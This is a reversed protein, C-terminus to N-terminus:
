NCGPPTKTASKKMHWTWTSTCMGGTPPLGDAAVCGMFMNEAEIVDIDFENTATVTINSTDAQHWTCAAHTPLTPNNERTLVGMNCMVPGAGLSGDTGVTVTATAMTYNVPLSAGVLGMNAVPDAVGLMCGDNSGAMVSVIDFCSDGASLGFLTVGPCASGGAGGGGTGAAGTADGGDSGGSSAGCGIAFVAGVLAMSLGTKALNTM